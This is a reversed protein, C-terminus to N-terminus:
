DVTVRYGVTGTAGAPLAGTFRWGLTEGSEVVSCALPAPTAGCSASGPEVRTYAPALDDVELGEIPAPGSNRYVIEYELTHGPLADNSTGFGEGLTVNRVRKDLELRGDAAAAVNAADVNSRAFTVGHGTGAPDVLSLVTDLAVELRSGPLADAPVFADIVLCTRTGPGVALPAGFPGEGPDVEGDCDLDLVLNADMRTAAGGSGDGLSAALTGHAGSTHAHAFRVRTGPSASALRDAELRPAPAVGVDIGEITQGTAPVLTVRGDTVTGDAFAPAESVFATSGAEVVRVTIPAGAHVPPVSFRWAGEGDTTVAGISGGGALLFEVARGGAGPEGPQDVGDHSDGASSVDVFVRGALTASADIVIPTPEDADVTLDLGANSDDAVTTGDPGTGSATATNRYDGVAGGAGVILADVRVTFAITAREGPAIRSGPGLLEANAGTGTFSADPVVTAPGSLLTPAAIVTHNGAGFTADLDDVLSLDTLAVDGVNEVALRVTAERGSVSAAKGLRLAPNEPVPEVTCIELAWDQLTGGDEPYVDQLRLTWAGGPAAGDFADLPQTPALTRGGTPPCARADTGEDDFSFSFDDQNGCRRGDLERATGDHVLSFVLDSVWTHDGRVGLVNVDSVVRSSAPVTITSTVTTAANAPISVPGADPYVTCSSLDPADLAVPHDEVEGDSAIGVPSSIASVNSSARLRLWSQGGGSAGPLSYWQLEVSGAACSAPHNDNRESPDFRGNLNLDIWGAVRTGAACALTVAHSGAAVSVAAATGVADEDDIGLTDDGTGNLFGSGATSNLSGPDNDPGLAGIRAAGPSEDIRHFAAGYGTPADGFDLAFGSTFDFIAASTTFLTTASTAGTTRSVERVEQGVNSYLAGTLSNALQGNPATALFQFTGAAPTFRWRGALGGGTGGLASTTGYLVTTGGEDVAALDGFGGLDQPTCGCAALLGLAEAAVVQTGDLSMTLAHVENAFGGSESGVYYTGDLFTGGTSDLETAPATVPGAALDMMLSHSAAGSGLAPDWRYVSTGDGYYAYGADTNVALANVGSAIPSSTLFVDTNRTVNIGRITANSSYVFVDDAAGAAGPAVALAAGLAATGALGALAARTPESTARRHPLRSPDPRPDLDGAEPM